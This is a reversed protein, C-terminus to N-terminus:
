AHIHGMDYSSCKCVASLLYCLRCAVSGLNGFFPVTNRKYCVCVYMTHRLDTCLKNVNQPATNLLLQAQLFSFQHITHCDSPRTLFM